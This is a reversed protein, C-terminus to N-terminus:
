VAMLGAKEFVSHAALLTEKMVAMLVVLKYEWLLVLRAVM